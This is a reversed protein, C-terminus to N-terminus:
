PKLKRHISHFWGTRQGLISLFLTSYVLSGDPFAYVPKNKCFSSCWKTVTSILSLELRLINFRRYAKETILDINTHHTDNKSINLGLHKHNPVEAIPTDNMFIDPHYTSLISFTGISAALITVPPV